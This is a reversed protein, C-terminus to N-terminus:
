MRRVTNADLRYLIHGTFMSRRGSAFLTGESGARVWVVDGRDCETVVTASGRTYGPSIDDLYMRALMVDNRMLDLHINDSESSQMSASILYLGDWPCIFSSTAESYHGGANTLVEDFVIIDSGSYSTPDGTDAFATFAVPGTEDDPLCDYFLQMYDSIQDFCDGLVTGVIEFNCSLQGDCLAQMALWDSPQAEEVLETCDYEPNPACCEGCVSAHRGYVGSTLLITRNIPCTVRVVDLTCAFTTFQSRTDPEPSPKLAATQQSNVAELREVRRKLAANARSLRENLDKNASSLRGNQAELRVVRTLLLKVTEEM